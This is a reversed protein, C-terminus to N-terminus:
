LEAHACTKAPALVKTASAQLIFDSLYNILLKSSLVLFLPAMSLRMESLVFASVLLLIFSIERERKMLSQCNSAQM